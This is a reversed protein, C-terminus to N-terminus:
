GLRHMVRFDLTRAKVTEISQANINVGNDILFRVTEINGAFSAVMLANIGNQDQININIGDDLLEGILDIDGAYAACFFSRRLDFLRNFASEDYPNEDETGDYEATSAAHITSVLACICFFLIYKKM